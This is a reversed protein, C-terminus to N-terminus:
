DDMDDIDDDDEEDEDDENNKKEDKGGKKAVIAKQGFGQQVPLDIPHIETRASNFFNGKLVQKGEKRELGDCIFLIGVTKREVFDDIDKATILKKWGLPTQLLWDKPSLLIRKGDVEFIYQSKTRAGLFKFKGEVAAQTWPENSKVLNLIVKSKGGIDWLEFNMLREEIKKVIMLPMNLTNAGPQAVIWRDKDWVLSDNIGVYVSYPNEEDAFDLRQKSQLEKYEPGGHKELFVDPGMWRAKQRALLSGDVRQKGIDWPKGANARNEKEPLRIVSNVEPENMLEGNENRINVKVIAESGQVTPEIWLPTVENNSSFVYQPPIKKKDYLLYLKGGDNVSAAVTPNVAIAFHLVPNDTPADPRGNKGYYLLHNKLDPIQLTVPTFKLDLAAKGIADCAQKSMAFSSVPPTKKITALDTAVIESPRSITISLACVLLFAALGIIGFNIWKLWQKAVTGRPRITVKLVHLSFFQQIFINIIIKFLTFNM